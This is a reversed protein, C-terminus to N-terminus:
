FNESQKTKGIKKKTSTSVHIQEILIVFRKHCNHGLHVRVMSYFM